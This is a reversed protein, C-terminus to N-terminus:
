DQFNVKSHTAFVWLFSFLANSIVITSAAILQAVPLPFDPILAHLLLSNITYGVLTMTFFKPLSNIVPRTDQFVWIKQLIYNVTIAASFSIPAMWKVVM